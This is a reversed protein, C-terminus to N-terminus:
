VEDGLHDRYIESFHPGSRFEPGTCTTQETRVSNPTVTSHRVHPCTPKRLVLANARAPIAGLAGMATNM